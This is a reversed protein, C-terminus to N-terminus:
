GWGQWLGSLRTRVYGVLDGIRHRNAHVARPLALCFRSVELLSFFPNLREGSPDYALQRMERGVMWELYAIEHSSLRSRWREAAERVFGAKSSEKLYSSNRIDVGAMEERFDIGLFTCLRSIVVLPDALLDEFRVVQVRDAGLKQGLALGTLVASKWLLANLTLSYSRRVRRMERRVEATIERGDEVLWRQNWDRYSAAVGRPDRVMVIFRAEPFAEVVADAAFVHRPTKEGWVELEDVPGDPGAMTLMCYAAFVSDIGAGLALSAKSLKELFRQDVARDELTELGYIGGHLRAFHALVSDRLAVPPSSIEDKTLRARMDEFYHTEPAIRVSPHRNLVTRVLETGSRSPGVIFVCNKVPLNGPSM